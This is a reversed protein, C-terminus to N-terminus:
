ADHDATAVVAPLEGRAIRGVSELQLAAVHAAVEGRRIQARLTECAGALDARLDQCVLRLASDHTVCDARTAAAAAAFRSRLHRACLERSHDRLVAAIEGARASPDVRTLTM